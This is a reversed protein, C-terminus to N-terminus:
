RHRPLQCRRLQKVRPHGGSHQRPETAHYSAWKRITFRRPFTVFFLLNRSAFNLANRRRLDEYQFLRSCDRNQLKWKQSCPAPTWPAAESEGSKPAAILRPTQIQVKPSTQNRIAYAVSPLVDMAADWGRTFPLARSLGHSSLQPLADFASDRVVLRFDPRTFNHIDNNAIAGLEQCKTSPAQIESVQNIRGTTMHKDWLNLWAHTLNLKLM